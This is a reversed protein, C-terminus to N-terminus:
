EEKEWANDQYGIKNMAWHIWCNIIVDERQACSQLIRGCNAPCNTAALKSALMKIIENKNKIM